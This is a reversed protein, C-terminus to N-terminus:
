VQKCSVVVTKNDLSLNDWSDWTNTIVISHKNLSIDFCCDVFLFAPHNGQVM